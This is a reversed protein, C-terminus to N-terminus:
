WGNRISTPVSEAGTTLGSMSRPDTSSKEVMVARPSRPSHTPAIAAAAGRSSLRRATSPLISPTIESPPPPPVATWWLVDNRKLHIAIDLRLSGAPKIWASGPYERELRKITEVAAAPNGAQNQSHALWFLAEAKGPEKPDALAARLEEMARTWQEDAIYDKARTMRASEAPRALAMAPGALVLAAVIVLRVTQKLM